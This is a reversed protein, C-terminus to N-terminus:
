SVVNNLQFCLRPASVVLNGLFLYQGAADVTDQAEKWGTFGFQWKPDASMYLQIFNTNLGFLKGAPAYQDVVHTAGNFKLGKFGIRALDSDADEFRQQPLVKNWMIDWVPQPSILLDPRTAGFWCSGYATQVDSMALSATLSKYYGNIGVNNADAAAIDTRTVGGYTAYNSGNDVASELGDLQIAESNTGQGDLYLDTGLFEAMSGAADVLKSEVMSMAAEAGRNLPQDVGFLTANVYYEKLLFALATDTQVYSIDFTAGRTTAGGKLAAYQIPQRIFTGGEFAIKNKSRLRILLAANKFVTDVLSPVIHSNTVSTLDSYTLM